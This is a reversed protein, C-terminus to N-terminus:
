LVGKRSPFTIIIHPKSPQIASILRFSM